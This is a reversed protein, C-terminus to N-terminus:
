TSEKMRSFNKDKVFTLKREFHADELETKHSIVFVNTDEKLTDIIKMLNDVGEGDLSSDFTEDLILLNTSVSNKMKAIQRWTFLLSLDIRQKEGESFSDYSFTDRYRSRITENFSDDLEFHVFFDLIQLYKNTLENIVPIYQRIIKTKIGTDRLLEAAIRNYSAKENLVYKEDTKEHLETDLTTLDTNAQGMDGSSAAMGDLDSRLKDVSRQLRIITQNNNHLTNQDALCESMRSELSVIEDEYVKRQVEAEDMTTKLEKAKTTASNKKEQRLEEAIDQDCTPCHENDDFFKAEKVVTKVQNKFQAYYQDLKQKNARVTSLSDTIVPLLTSVTESLTGNTANLEEIESQLESIDSEKDKRQQTNIATLDRIYKKQANIKTKVVEISHTNNELEGKLISTKEKLLMNMKSFINIDLLDEIVDRRSTSNLQMFPVFSSSGLVVIQHFSKHSMQFVNKELIDQYERAHSSQNIMSGDKWIEFKAPKIGRVVRYKVTNVSFTVESVCDKNNITNVLQNKTIKRHAKGFLAFSLADLMTSKGAGNEGVILNTSSDLFNIENFYNGTSLFNKWRLTEFKIM